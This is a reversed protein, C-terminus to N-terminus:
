LAWAGQLGHVVVLSVLGRVAIFLGRAAVLVQHLWFYILYIFLFYIKKFFGFFLAITVCLWTQSSSTQVM